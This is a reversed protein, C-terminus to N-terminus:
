YIGRRLDPIIPIQIDIMRGEDALRMRIRMASGIDRSSWDSTALPKAPKDADRWVLDEGKRQLQENKIEFVQEKRVYIVLSRAGLQLLLPDIKNGAQYLNWIKVPREDIQLIADSISKWVIKGASHATAAMAILALALIAERNITGSRMPSEVKSFNSM